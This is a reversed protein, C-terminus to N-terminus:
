HSKPIDTMAHYAAELAKAVPSISFQTTAAIQGARGIRDQLGPDDLLELTRGALAIRDGPPVLIGTEGDAIVTVLDPTRFGVVPTGAAVAELTVHIGGRKATMWAAKAGALIQPVDSREGVFVVRNDTAGVARAFREVRKREPGDGVIVMRIASDTYRIVDFAWVADKLGAAADFGGVAVLYPVGAPLDLSLRVDGPSPVQAVAFPAVSLKDDTVGMARYRDAEAPGFAIVRDAARFAQRAFHSLWGLQAQDAASIVLRPAPSVGVRPRTSLWAVRAAWPGWAHLVDPREASVASRVRLWGAPDFGPHLPLSRVEIGGDTLAKAFTRGSGFVGVVQEFASRPLAPGLLSLTKAGAVPGLTSVLHFVRIPMPTM